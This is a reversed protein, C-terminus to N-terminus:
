LGELAGPLFALSARRYAPLPIRPDETPTLPDFEHRGPLYPRKHKWFGRGCACTRCLPPVTDSM